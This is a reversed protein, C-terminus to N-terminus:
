QSGNVLKYNTKRLYFMQNSKKRIRLLSVPWYILVPLPMTFMSKEWYFLHLASISVAREVHLSKYSFLSKTLLYDGSAREFM